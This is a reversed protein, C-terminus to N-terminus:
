AEQLKERERRPVGTQRSSVGAYELKGTDARWGSSGDHATGSLDELGQADEDEENDETEM